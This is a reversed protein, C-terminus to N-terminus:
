TAYRRTALRAAAETGTKRGQTGERRETTRNRLAGVVAAHRGLLEFHGDEAARQAPENASGFVCSGGLASEQEKAEKQTLGQLNM